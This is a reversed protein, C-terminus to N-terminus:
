GDDDEDFDDDDDDFDDEDDDFDEDDEDFDDEDEDLDEYDPDYDDFDEDEDRGRRSRLPRVLDREQERRPTEEWRRKSAPKREDEMGSDLVQQYM